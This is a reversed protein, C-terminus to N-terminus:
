RVYGLVNGFNGSMPSYFNFKLIKQFFFRGFVPFKKRPAETSKLVEIKIM